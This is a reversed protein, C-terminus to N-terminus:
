ELNFDVMRGKKLHAQIERSERLLIAKRKFNLKEDYKIQIIKSDYSKKLLRLLARNLEDDTLNKIKDNLLIGRLKPNDKDNMIMEFEINHFEFMNSDIINLASNLKNPNELITKIISIEMNDEIHLNINNRTENVKQVKIFKENVNLRSAIYRAYEDQYIPNLTKLYTNTEQLAKQKNLPDKINYTGIIFDIVFPIFAQAKNFMSNLENVKGENVMDAPDKGEGFIVVGGEFNGHSLMLSAKYAANLGAKDGDYAVIVKPEGRKILPLHDATLATGLTAVANDFGAQHLMIVDLYGESIIIQKNKYIKEKALNYGYLLRSKNFVKTQPSNVYKANHGTITRGGFGVMKGNLAYIPFTIREIFRSYLGNTGTDIVGM